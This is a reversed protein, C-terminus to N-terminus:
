LKEIENIVEQCYVKDKVTFGDLGIIDNIAITAWISANYWVIAQYSNRIMFKNCLELAKGKPDIFEKEKEKEKAQKFIKQIKVWESPYLELINDLENNFWDLATETKM